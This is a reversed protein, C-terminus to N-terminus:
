LVSAEPPMAESTSVGLYLRRIEDSGILEASPGHLGIRGEELVYAYEALELAVGANQEVLLM